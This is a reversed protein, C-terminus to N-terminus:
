RLTQGQFNLDRDRLIVHAIINSQTIAKHCMMERPLLAM